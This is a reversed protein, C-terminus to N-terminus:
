YKEVKRQKRLQHRRAGAEWEAKHQPSELTLKPVSVPNENEDLAVMVLYASNIQSRTGDLEEVFADVRIEMSTNGVYTIEGILIVTDNAYAAAKFQLNDISVTTVERNCHRRAVVAAVVDIWEVLKGGFLRGYGNIHETMIIQVQETRSNSVTKAMDM